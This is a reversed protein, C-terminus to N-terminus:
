TSGWRFVRLGNLDARDQAQREGQHRAVEGSRRNSVGLISDAMARIFPSAVVGAVIVALMGTTFRVAIVASAHLAEGIVFFGRM